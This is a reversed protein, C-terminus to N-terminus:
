PTSPNTLGTLRIAVATNLSTYGTFYDTIAINNRTKDYSCTYTANTFINFCGLTGVAFGNPM